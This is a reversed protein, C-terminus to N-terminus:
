GGIYNKGFVEVFKDHGYLREFQLQCVRKLQMDLERDFHVGYSALNHWDGRLWVWCGWKESAKRRPGAYVHHKHLGQTAGTLYCEKREQLISDAM